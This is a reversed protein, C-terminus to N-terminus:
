ARFGIRRCGMIVAVGIMAFRGVALHIAVLCAMGGAMAGIRTLSLLVWRVLDRIIQGVLARGALVMIMGALALVLVALALVALALGVLALIALAQVALVLAVLAPIALAQVALAQGVLAPIALVQDVSAQGALAPVAVLTQDAPALGASRQIALTPALLGRGVLALAVRDQAAALGLVVLGAMVQGVAPVALAQVVLRRIALALALLGRGVQGPAALVLAARHHDAVAAVPVALGVPVVLLLGALAAEAALAVWLVVVQGWGPGPEAAAAAVPPLPVAKGAAVATRAFKVPRQKM